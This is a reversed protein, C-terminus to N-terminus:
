RDYLRVVFRDVLVQHEHMVSIELTCEPALELDVSIAIRAVIAGVYCLHVTLGDAGIPHTSFGVALIVDSKSCSVAGLQGRDHIGELDVTADREVIRRRERFVTLECLGDRVYM